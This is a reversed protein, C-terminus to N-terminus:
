KVSDYAEILWDPAADLHYTTKYAEIVNERMAPLAPPCVYSSPVEKGLLGYCALMAEALGQDWSRPAATGRIIGDTAIMRATNDGLDVTTIILDDRGVSKASAIVSEAPIDWSAYVGKINPYNAFLADAVEGVKNADAFGIKDVIKIDPYNNTITEEFGRDRENTVYFAADFYVMAVEGEYGISQAMMDAAVKGNGYSDSNVCGVYDKGAELGNTINEMFVIKTGSAAVNKLTETTADPDIPMVFLVDPKLAMTTEIDAIQKEAKFNADTVSLVKIGASELLETAARVKTQNCQDSQIHYCFAATYNGAKLQTIEEETLSFESPAAAREGNPGKGLVETPNLNVKEYEKAPAEDAPSEDAPSEDAPVETAPAEDTPTPAEAAPTETPACATLMMGLVLVTSLIFVLLKASLSKKM